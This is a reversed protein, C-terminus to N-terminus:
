VRPPGQFSMRGSRWLSKPRSVPAEAVSCLSAPESTEETPPPAEADWRSLEYKLEAGSREVEQLDDYSCKDCLYLHELAEKSAEHKVQLDRMIDVLERAESLINDSNPCVTGAEVHELMLERIDRSRNTVNSVTYCMTILAVADKPSRASRARVGVPEVPTISSLANHELGGITRVRGKSNQVLWDGWADQLPDPGDRASQTPNATKGRETM